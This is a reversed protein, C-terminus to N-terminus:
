SAPPTRAAGPPSTPIPTLSDACRAGPFFLACAGSDTGKEIDDECKLLVEDCSIPAATAPSTPIATPGCRAGTKLLLCAGNYTNKGIGNMCQLLVEDCFTPAAGVTPCAAPASASSDGRNEAITVSFGAVLVIAPLVSLVAYERVTM